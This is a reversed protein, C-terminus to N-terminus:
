KRPAKFRLIQETSVGLAAAIKQLTALTMSQEADLYRSLSEKPIGLERSFVGLSKSGKKAALYAAVKRELSATGKGDSKPSSKAQAVKKGIDTERDMQELPNVRSISFISPTPSFVHM